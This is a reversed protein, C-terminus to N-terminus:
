NELKDLAAQASDKIYQYVELMKLTSDIAIDKVVQHKSALEEPTAQELESIVLSVDDMLEQLEEKETM